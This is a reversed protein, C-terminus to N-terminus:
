LASAAPLCVPPASPLRAREAARGSSSTRGSPLPRRVPRGYPLGFLRHGPQRRPGRHVGRHGRGQVLQPLGQLGRDARRDDPVPRGSPQRLGGLEPRRRAPQQPLGPLVPRPPRQREPVPHRRHQGRGRRPPLDRVPARQGLPDPHRQRHLQGRGAHHRPLRRLERRGGHPRRQPQVQRDPRSPLRLLDRGQQRPLRSHGPVPLIRVFRPRDPGPGPQRPLLRLPGAPRGGPEDGGRRRAGPPRRPASRRRPVQRLQIRRLDPGHGPNPRPRRQHRFGARHRRDAPLSQLRQLRGRARGPHRQSPLPRGQGGDVGVPQQQHGPGGPEPGPRPAPLGRLPRAHLGLVPRLEAQRLLLHQQPHRLRGQDRGHRDRASQGEQRGPGLGHQLAASHGGQRLDSQPLAHGPRELRLRRLVHQSRPHGQPQGRGRGRGRRGLQLLGLGPRRVARGGGPGDPTILSDENERRRGAPADMFASLRGLCLAMEHRNCSRHGARGRSSPGNRKLRVPKEAIIIKRSNSKPEGTPGEGAVGRVDRCAHIRISSFLSSAMVVSMARMRLMPMLAWM